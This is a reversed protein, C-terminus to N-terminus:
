CKTSGFIWTTKKRSDFTLRRKTYKAEWQFHPYNFVHPIGSAIFLSGFYKQLFDAFYHWSKERKMSCTCMAINEKTHNVAHVWFQRGKSTRTKKKWDALYKRSTCFVESCLSASKHNLPMNRNRNMGVFTDVLYVDLNQANSLSLEGSKQGLFSLEVWVFLVKLADVKDIIKDSRVITTSTRTTAPNEARARSRTNWLNMSSSKSM